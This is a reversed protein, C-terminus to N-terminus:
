QTELPVLVNTGTQITWGKPYGMLCEYLEPNLKTGASIGMHMLASVLTGQYGKRCYHQSQPFTSNKSDNLTPTPITLGYILQSALTNFVTGNKYGKNNAREKFREPTEIVQMSTPTILSLGFGKGNIYHGSRNLRFIIRKAPTAKVSWIMLRSTLSATPFRDVLMKTLLGLRSYKSYREIMNLGSSVTMMKAKEWAQLLTLNAPTAEQLSMSTTEINFLDLQRLTRTYSQM